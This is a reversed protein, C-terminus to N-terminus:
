GDNNLPYIIKSKKLQEDSHALNSISQDLVEKHRKEWGSRLEHDVMEVLETYEKNTM